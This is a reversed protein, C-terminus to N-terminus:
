SGNDFIMLPYMNMKTFLCIKLQIVRELIIQYIQFFVDRSIKDNFINKTEFVIWLARRTINEKINMIANMSAINITKLTQFKM